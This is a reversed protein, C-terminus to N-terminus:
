FPIDDDSFEPEGDSESVRTGGGSGRESGGRGILVVQDAKIEFMMRDIGEKDQYSRSRITGEVYVQRGKRLYEGCIEATRGWAVIRHWETHEKKEGDKTRWVENTAVSFTSM